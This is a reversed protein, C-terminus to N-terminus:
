ESCHFFFQDGAANVQADTGLSFGSATLTISQNAVHATAGDEQSLARGDEMEAIHHSIAADTVNLICVYTPKFGVKSISLAAGTGIYSGAFTRSAGSM